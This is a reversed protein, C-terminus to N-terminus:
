HSFMVWGGRARERRSGKTNMAPLANRVAAQRVFVGGRVLARGREIWWTWLSGLDSSLTNQNDAGSRSGLAEQGTCM